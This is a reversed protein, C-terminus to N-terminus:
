LKDLEAKWDPFRQEYPPAPGWDDAKESFYSRGCFQFETAEQGSIGVWSNPEPSSYLVVYGYGDDTTWPGNVIVLNFDLGDVPRVRDHPVLKDTDFNAIFSARRGDTVPVDTPLAKTLHFTRM